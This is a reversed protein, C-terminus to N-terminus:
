EGRNKNRMSSYICKPWFITHYIAQIIGSLLEGLYWYDDIDFDSSARYDYEKHVAYVIGLMTYFLLFENMPIVELSLMGCIPKEILSVRLGRAASEL